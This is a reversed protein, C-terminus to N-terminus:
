RKRCVNQSRSFFIFSHLSFWRVTAYTSQDDPSAEFRMKLGHGHKLWYSDVDTIAPELMNISQLMVTKEFTKSFYHECEYQQHSCQSVVASKSREVQVQVLVRLIVLRLVEPVERLANAWVCNIHGTM